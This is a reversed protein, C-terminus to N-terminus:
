HLKCVKGFEGQVVFKPPQEMYVEGNLYDNMFANKVDLQHILWNHVVALSIFMRVSVM